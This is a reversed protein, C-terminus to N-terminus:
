PRKQAVILVQESGLYGYGLSWNLLIRPSSFGAAALDVLIQWGFHYFCLIGGDPNVPDGHYEPEM